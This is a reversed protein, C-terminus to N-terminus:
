LRREREEEREYVRRSAPAATRATTTNVTNSIYPEPDPLVLGLITLIAGLVMALVALQRVLSSGAVGTTGSTTSTTVRDDDGDAVLVTDVDDGDTVTQSPFVATGGSTTDTTDTTTETTDTTTMDGAAYTETTVSATDVDDGPPLAYFVGGLVLLILGIALLGPRM